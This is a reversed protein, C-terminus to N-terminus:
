RLIIAQDDLVHAPPPMASCAVCMRASASTSLLARSSPTLASIRARSSRLARRYRGDGERLIAQLTLRARELEYPLRQFEARIDDAANRPDFVGVVVDLRV